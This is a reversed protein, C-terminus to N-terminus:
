ASVSNGIKCGGQSDAHRASRNNWQENYGNSNKREQNHRQHERNETKPIVPQRWSAWDALNSYTVRSVGGSDAQQRRMVAAYGCSRDLAKVAAGIVDAYPGNLYLHGATKHRPVTLVMGSAGPARGILLQDCL